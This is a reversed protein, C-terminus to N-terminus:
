LILYAYKQMIVAIIDRLNESIRKDDITCIFEQNEEDRIIVTKEGIFLMGKNTSNNFGEKSWFLTIKDKYPNGTHPCFTGCNGCENCMGDIHIIQPKAKADIAINARNPCVTCCIECVRDCSLCREGDEHGLSADMLVAKKLKVDNINIIPNVKTFDHKINLKRLIDKAIKKSDAVAQVISSAGKACDGAVYVNEINTQNCEDLRAYRGKSLEINNKAILEIDVRAGTASIVTDYYLGKEVGTPIVKRRGDAGKEALKMKQVKLIRGEYSVPSLLERIRIDDAIALRIEEPEAPMFEKTRRYVIHVNKAGIARKAARACDMAVDGGGIIAINEGLKIKCNAKKSKDLFELADILKGKGQEVPSFGDRWAGTAIIVFDYEKMLNDISYNEDVNYKFNVGTKVCMNYDLDIDKQNVRFKPIIYKVIGMPKDNKEFVTVDVGNRRIFTGSAIGAPGAGIIAVKKDTKLPTKVISDIFNQQANQVAISKANRIQLPMDYDLRTCKNQCEHSCLKSLISPTANDIAIAEFAKDYEGMAVLELYEPIQQNIPCGGDKCPAKYCDYLPLPSQTKRSKVERIEKQLHIDNPLNDTLSKLAQVNINNFERDICKQAVKSLQNIRAYGGPKLITTCFTVPKIGTELLEELNFYDTGGSYSISIDGDFYQSFKNAVHISLPYLARGSMYMFEGPLEEDKIQVPFTNTIKIGFDLNNEKATAQLRSVLKTADDFKLDQEFHRHDFSIYGYGMEDLINRTLDYGLLTPNCKVYTHLRKKVLFYHAIKEIEEPPCGHLTSLTISSSILHPIQEIQKTTINKFKEINKLLYNKCQKWIDTNEANTLDNIFTDIKRSTIGEYDYGVSMNFVFDTKISIGFEFAAVHIAFWGKVYEEYAQQVTLETSWECNYGEDQANICPRPICSRLAEGDLTQVTKLEMVRAGSVYAAVLNQALQTNPGAAPGIPSTIETGFISITKGSMNKYFKAKDIGFVQSENEYEKIMWDVLKDFPIPTM